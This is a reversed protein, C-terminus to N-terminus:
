KRLLRDLASSLSWEDEGLDWAGLEREGAESGEARM